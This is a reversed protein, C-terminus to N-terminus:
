VANDASGAEPWTAGWDWTWVLTRLEEGPEVEAGTWICTVAGAGATAGTGTLVAWTAAISGAVLGGWICADAERGEATGTGVGARAGTEAGTM